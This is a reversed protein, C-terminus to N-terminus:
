FYRSREKDVRNADAKCGAAKLGKVKHCLWM